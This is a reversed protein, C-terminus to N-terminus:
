AGHPGQYFNTWTVVVSGNPGAAVWEKDNFYNGTGSWSVMNPQSWTRGGDHSTSVAVGSNASVRSFVINAYYLTGDPAFALASDNNEDDGGQAWPANISPAFRWSGASALAPVAFCLAAVIAVAVALRGRDITM